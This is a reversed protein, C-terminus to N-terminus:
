GAAEAPDQTKKLKEENEKRKRQIMEVSFAMVALAGVAIGALGLVEGEKPDVENPNKAITLAGVTSNMVATPKFTTMAKIADATAKAENAADTSTQASGAEAAETTGTTNDVKTAPQATENAVPVENTKPVVVKKKTSDCYAPTAGLVENIETQSHVQMKSGNGGVQVTMSSKAGMTIDVMTDADTRAVENFSYKINYSARYADAPIDIKVFLKQTSKPPLYYTTQMNLIQSVDYASVDTVKVAVCDDSPNAIRIGYIGSEGPQMSFSSPFDQNIGIPFAMGVALVLAVAIMMWKM